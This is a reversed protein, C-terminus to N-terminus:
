IGGPLGLGRQKSPQLTFALKEKKDGAIFLHFVAPNKGKVKIKSKDTEPRFPRGPAM